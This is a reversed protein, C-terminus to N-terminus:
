EDFLKGAKSPEEKDEKFSNMDKEILLEKDIPREKVERGEKVLKFCKM